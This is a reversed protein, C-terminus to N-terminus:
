RVEYEVFTYDIPSGQSYFIVALAYRGPRSERWPVTLMADTVLFNPAAFTQNSTLSGDPRLWQVGTDSGHVAAVDIVTPQQSGSHAPIMTVTVTIEEGVAYTARDTTLRIFPGLLRPYFPQGAVPCEGRPLQSHNCENVLLRGGIRLPSPDFLASETPVAGDNDPYHNTACDLPLSGALCGTGISLLPDDLITGKGGVAYIKEFQGGELTGACRGADWNLCQLWDNDHPSSADPLCLFGLLTSPYYTQGDVSDWWMDELYPFDGLTGAFDRICGDKALDALPTGHHMTGLTILRLVADKGNRWAYQQLYSRALLGGQSHAVIVLPRDELDLRAIEGGLIDGLGQVTRPDTPQIESAFSRYSFFYIKYKERLLQGPPTQANFVSVLNDWVQENSRAGHVLILPIRQPIRNIEGGLSTTDAPWLCPLVCPPAAEVLLVFSASLFTVLALTLVTRAAAGGFVPTRRRAYCRRAHGKARIRNEVRDWNRIKKGEEDTLLERSGASANRQEAATNLNILM